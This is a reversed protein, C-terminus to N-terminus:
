KVTNEADSPVPRVYAAPSKKFEDECRESCFYITRGQYQERPSAQPNVEMGCVPDLEM